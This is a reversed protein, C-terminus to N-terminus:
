WPVNVPHLTPPNLVRNPPRVLGQNRADGNVCWPGSSDSNKAACQMAVISRVASHTRQPRLPRWTVARAISGNATASLTTADGYRATVLAASAVALASYSVQTPLLIIVLTVAASGVGVVGLMEYANRRHSTSFGRWTASVAAPILTDIVCLASNLAAIPARMAVQRM